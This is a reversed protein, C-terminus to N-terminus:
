LSGANYDRARLTSKLSVVDCTFIPTTGICGPQKVLSTCSLYALHWNQWTGRKSVRVFNLGSIQKNLRLLFLFWVPNKGDVLEASGMLVVYAKDCPDGRRNLSLM